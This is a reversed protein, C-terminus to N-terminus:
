SRSPSHPISSDISFNRTRNNKDLRNQALAKDNQWCLITGVLVKLDDKDINGVIGDAIVWPDVPQAITHVFVTLETAEGRSALLVTAQAALAGGVVLVPGGPSSGPLAVLGEGEAAVTSSQAQISWNCHLGDWAFSQSHKTANKL